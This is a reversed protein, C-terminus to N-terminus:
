RYSIEVESTLPDETMKLEIDVHPVSLTELILEPWEVLCHKGSHLLEDGGIDWFAEISQLRYLDMHYVEADIQSAYYTNILGFSPSSMQEEDVGLAHCLAHTLTTKGVGLSGRLLYVRIGKQETTHLLETAYGSIDDLHIRM